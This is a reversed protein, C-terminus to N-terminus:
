FHTPPTHARKASLYSLASHDFWRPKHDNRCSPPLRIGRETDDFAGALGGGKYDILVFAYEDPHYQVAM